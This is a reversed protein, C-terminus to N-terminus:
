IFTQSANGKAEKAKKEDVIEYFLDTMAMKIYDENDWFKSLFSRVSFYPSDTELGYGALTILYDLQTM